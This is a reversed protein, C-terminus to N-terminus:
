LVENVRELDKSSDIDIARIDKDQCASIVGGNSIIKNLAEFGFMNYNDPNWCITKLMELEKGKVFLM